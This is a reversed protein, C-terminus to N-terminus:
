SNWSKPRNVIREHMQELKKTDFASEVTRIDNLLTTEDINRALLQKIAYKVRAWGGGGRELDLDLITIFPIGIDSLLKWFHNVFRGGLLCWM